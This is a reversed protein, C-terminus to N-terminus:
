VDCMRRPAASPAAAPAGLTDQDVLGQKVHSDLSWIAAIRVDMRVHLTKDTPRAIGAILKVWEYDATGYFVGWAQDLHQPSCSDSRSTLQQVLADDRANMAALADSSMYRGLRARLHDHVDAAGYRTLTRVVPHADMYDCFFEPYFISDAIQYTRLWKEEDSMVPQQNGM